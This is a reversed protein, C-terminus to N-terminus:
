TASRMEARRQRMGERRCVRCNRAGRKTIYTNAEDYPHGQPCHTKAREHAGNFRVRGRRVNERHTVPELHAPGFEDAVAKVCAPNGCVHDLELGQPVPGVLARYAALHATTQRNGLTLWGYGDAKQYGTWLWCGQTKNVRAWFREGLVTM